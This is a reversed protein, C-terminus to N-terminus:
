NNGFTLFQLSSVLIIFINLKRIAVNLLVSVSLQDFAQKTTTKWFKFWAASPLIQKIKQYLIFTSFVLYGFVDPNMLHGDTM